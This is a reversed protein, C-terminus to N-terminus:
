HQPLTRATGGVSLSKSLIASKGIGTVINEGNPIL